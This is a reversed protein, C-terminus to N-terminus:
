QTYGGEYLWGHTIYYSALLMYKIGTVLHDELPEEDLNKDIYINKYLSCETSFIDLTRTEGTNEDIHSVMFSFMTFTKSQKDM